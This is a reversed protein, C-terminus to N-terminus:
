QSDVSANIPFVKTDWGRMLNRKKVCDRSRRVGNRHQSISALRTILVPLVGRSSVPNGTVLRLADKNKVDIYM